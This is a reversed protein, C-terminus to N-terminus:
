RHLQGPRPADAHCDGPLAARHGSVRLPVRQIAGLSVPVELVSACFTQVIRRGNGYTGAIESMLASFRPGYGTAHEAPVHAKSWRGCDPCWGQHLVWHTVDLAIPPLELVQPTHYPRTLAFTTNGCACREPRLEQVITPALAGPSPGSPGTYWGSQSAHHCDDTPAAEQLALGVVTASPPPRIRTYVLRWHPSVSKSPMSNRSTKKCRVLYAQVAPPTHEWDQPSFLFPWASSDPTSPRDM